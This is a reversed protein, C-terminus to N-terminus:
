KKEAEASAAASKASRTIAVTAVVVNPAELFTVGGLKVDSIRLKDGINLETVDLTIEDPMDKPLAEVMLKRVNVTLKGGARVGAANGTIKVPLEMRIKKDEAVELFDIHLIHDTVPHFQIEKMVGRYSKDGVVVNVFYVSPTYVLSKLDAYAASFELNTSGGYLNCPILEERRLQSAGKKGAPERLQGKLELTKM